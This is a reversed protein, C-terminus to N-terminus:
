CIKNINKSKNVAPQPPSSYVTNKLNTVTSQIFQIINRNEELVESLLKLDKEVADIRRKYLNTYLSQGVTAGVAASTLSILILDITSM